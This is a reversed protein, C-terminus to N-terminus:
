AFGTPSPELVKVTPLGRLGSTGGNAGEDTEVLECCLLEARGFGHDLEVLTELRALRASRVRSLSTRARNRKREERAEEASQNRVELRTPRRARGAHSRGSGGLPRERM